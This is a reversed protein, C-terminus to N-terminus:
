DKLYQRDAGMILLKLLRKVTNQKREMQEDENERTLIYPYGKLEINLREKLEKNLRPRSLSYKEQLETIIRKFQREKFQRQGEFMLCVNYLVESETTWGKHEIIQLTVKEIQSTVEESLEPIPKGKEQPYVRDAEDQGLSRILLERGWGKMTFGKDKFERAKQMAFNMTKLDYLPISYFSVIKSQKNKAAIHKATRLMQEPIDETSLKNILGLYTLLGIVNTIQKDQHISKGCLQRIRSIPAFFAPRGNADTFYQTLIHEKAFENMVQLEKQYNRIRMYVESYGERFTVSDLFSINSDIIEKQEVQWDSEAFEILYVKRLFRLVRSFNKTELIRQTLEIISGCVGCRDSHCKYLYDGSDAIFIGASPNSDDHFLCRFREGAVGLFDHLDQQKLYTFVDSSSSATYPTPKIIAQLAEVQQAAILGPNPTASQTKPVTIPLLSSCKKRDSNGNQGVSYETQVKPLHDIITQIDYRVNHHQIIRALFKNNPDKSWYFGPVRLLRSPNKVATDAKLYKILRDECEEFQVLTAGSHLLWLCQLGNRTEVVWTPKLFTELRELVENKYRETEYLPYYNKEEDRGRDFDAFIANFHTIDKDKYGGTNIAYYVEYGQQNIQELRAATNSNYRGNVDIRGGKQGYKLCGFNIAATDFIDDFFERTEINM